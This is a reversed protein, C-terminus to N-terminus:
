IEFVSDNFGSSPSAAKTPPEWPEKSWVRECTLYSEVQMDSGNAPPRTM